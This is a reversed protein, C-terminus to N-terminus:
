NIIYYHIYSRISFIILRSYYFQFILKCLLTEIATCQLHMPWLQINLLLFFINRWSTLCFKFHKNLGISWCLGFSRTIIVFYFRLWLIAWNVMRDFCFCLLLLLRVIVRKGLKCEWLSAFRKEPLILHYASRNAVLHVVDCHWGV